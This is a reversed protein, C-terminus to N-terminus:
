SEGWKGLKVGSYHMKLPITSHRIDITTQQGIIATRLEFLTERRGGFDQIDYYLGWEDGWGTILPFSIKIPFDM